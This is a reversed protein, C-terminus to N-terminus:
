ASTQFSMGRDVELSTPPETSQCCLLPRPRESASTAATPTLYCLVPDLERRAPKCGAVEMPAWLRTTVWSYISRLTLQTLLVSTVLEVMSLRPPMMSTCNQQLRRPASGLRAVQQYTSRAPRHAPDSASPCALVAPSTAFSSTQKTAPLTGRRLLLDVATIKSWVFPRRTAPTQMYTSYQPPPGLDSRAPAPWKSHIRRHAPM